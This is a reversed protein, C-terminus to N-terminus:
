FWLMAELLGNRRGRPVIRALIEASNKVVIPVLVKQDEPYLLEAQRIAGGLLKVLATKSATYALEVVLCGGKESVLLLGTPKEDEFCVMSLDDSYDKWRVPLSVAVPRADEDMMRELSKLASAGTNGLSLVSGEGAAKLLFEKEELESLAFQYVNGKEEWVEMGAMRLAERLAPYAEEVPLEMFAGCLSGGHKKYCATLEKSLLEYMKEPTRNEEPFYLYVIELWGAHVGTVSIGFLSGGNEPEGTYYAVATLEGRRVQDMYNDPVIWLCDLSDPDPIIGMGNEGAEFSFAKEAFSGKGANYNNLSRVKKEYIALRESLIKKAKKRAEIAVAEGTELNIGSAEFWLKLTEELFAAFEADSEKYQKLARLAYAVADELAEDGCATPPHERFENGNLVLPEESGDEKAAYERIRQARAAYYADEKLALRVSGSARGTEILGAVSAFMKKRKKWYLDGIRRPTLAEEDKGEPFIEMVAFVPYASREPMKGLLKEVFSLSVGSKAQFCVTDPMGSKASVAKAFRRLLLLIEGQRGGKSSLLDIMIREDPKSCLIVAQIRYKKSAGGHPDERREFCAFSLDPLFAERGLSEIPYGIGELFSLFEQREPITLSGVAVCAVETDSDDVTKLHEVLSVDKVLFEFVPPEESFLFGCSSLFDGIDQRDSPFCAGIFLCGRERAYSLLKLVVRRGLGRGRYEPSIYLSDLYLISEDRISIIATGAPVEGQGFEEYIGLPMEAGGYAGDPMLLMAEFLALNERDIPLIRM